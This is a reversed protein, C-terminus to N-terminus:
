LAAGILQGGSVKKAREVKVQILTDEPTEGVKHGFDSLAAKSPLEKSWKDLRAGFKVISLTAQHFWAAVEYDVWRGARLLERFLDGVYQDYIRPGGYLMCMEWYSIPVRIADDPTELVMGSKTLSIKIGGHRWTTPGDISTIKTNYTDSTPKRSRGLVQVFDSIVFMEEEKLIRHAFVDSAFKNANRPPWVRRFKVVEEAIASYVASEAMPEEAYKNHLELIREATRAIEDHSDQIGNGAYLADETCGKLLYNACLGGTFPDLRVLQVMAAEPTRGFFGILTAVSHTVGLLEGEPAYLRFGTQPEGKIEVVEEPTFTRTVSVMDKLARIETKM